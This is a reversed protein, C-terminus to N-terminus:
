KMRVGRLADVADAHANLYEARTVNKLSKNEVAILIERAMNHAIEAPSKGTVQVDVTEAM